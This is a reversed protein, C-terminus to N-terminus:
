ADYDEWVTAVSHRHQVKGGRVDRLEQMDKLMDVPVENSNEYRTVGNVSRYTMGTVRLTEYGILAVVDGANEDDKLFALVDNVLQPVCGPTEACCIQGDILDYLREELTQKENM